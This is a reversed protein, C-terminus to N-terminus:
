TQRSINKKQGKMSQLKPHQKMFNNYYKKGLPGTPLGCQAKYAQVKAETPMDKIISNALELLGTSDLPCCMNSCQICLEVLHPEIDIMPSKIHGSLKGRKVRM